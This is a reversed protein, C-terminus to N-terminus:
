SSHFSVISGHLSVISSHFTWLIITASDCIMEFYFTPEIDTGRDADLHFALDLDVDVRRPDAIGSMDSM